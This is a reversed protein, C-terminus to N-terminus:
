HIHGWGQIWGLAMSCLWGWDNALGFPSERHPRPLHSSIVTGHPPPCPPRPRSTLPAPIPPSKVFFPRPPPPPAFFRLKARPYRFFFIILCFFPAPAPLFFIPHPYPPEVGPTLPGSGVGRDEGWQWAPLYQLHGESRAGPVPGESLIM